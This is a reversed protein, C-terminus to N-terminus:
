SQVKRKSLVYGGPAAGAPADSFQISFGIAGKPIRWWGRENNALKGELSYGEAAESYYVPNGNADLERTIAVVYDVDPGPEDEAWAVSFAVWQEDIFLSKDGSELPFNIRGSAGEPLAIPAFVVDPTKRVIDLLTRKGFPTDWGPTTGPIPSRMDPGITPDGEPDGTLEKLISRTIQELAKLRNDQENTLVDDETTAGNIFAQARQQMWATDIGTPDVKRGKPLAVDRHGAYRGVGRNMYRLLAGVLKPYCDLQAASWRGSGDSEAEIGLFEDNLDTFGAWASAGAHYATGAAVVYITGDRGIGLNCLPGALDSRGNTVVNLSPYDSQGARVPTGTHHGVVGEVLRMGGHGRSRWGPVEVVRYGTTRAADALWPVWIVGM